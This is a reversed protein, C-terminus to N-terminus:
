SDQLCCCRSRFLTTYPTNLNTYIETTATDNFFCDIDTKDYYHVSSIKKYESLWEDALYNMLCQGTRIHKPKNPLINTHWETVFELYTKM